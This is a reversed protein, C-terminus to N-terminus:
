LLFLGTNSLLMERLSLSDHKDLVLLFPHASIPFLLVKSFAFQERRQIDLTCTNHTSADEVCEIILHCLTTLLYIVLRGIHYVTSDKLTTMWTLTAFRNYHRPSWCLSCTQICITRTKDIVVHDVEPPPWKLTPTCSHHNLQGVLQAKFCNRPESWIM